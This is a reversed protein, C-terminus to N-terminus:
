HRDHLYIDRKQLEREVKSWVRDSITAQGRRISGDFDALDMEPMEQDMDGILGVHLM